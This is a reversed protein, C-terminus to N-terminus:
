ITEPHRMAEALGANTSSERAIGIRKVDGRIHLM